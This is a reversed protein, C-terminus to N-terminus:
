TRHALVLGIASAYDLSEDVPIESAHSREETMNLWVDAVLYPVESESMLRDVFSKNSAGLGCLLVKELKKEKGSSQDIRANWFAFVKRMEAKLDDINSFEDGEGVGYAPTTSFQVVEEEVVYFGTKKASLNIILHPRRDGSHIVARAIAQSEIDFSVLTIGASEFISIYSNVISQPLVSVAVKISGTARSEEIIEFDFVSESLSVPANEEVIFAVADRLGERPVWNIAATFLYAKEEPLTANAYRVGYRSSFKKLISVLEETNGISGSVVADTPNVVKSAYALKFGDGLFERKLQVFKTDFDTIAIGATSLILFEPTPFLNLFTKKKLSSTM